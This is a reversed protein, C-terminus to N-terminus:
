AVREADAPLPLESRDLYDNLHVVVTEADILAVAYAPPEHSKPVPRITQFDLPVQHNTARLMSFPVGLWSGSIPRHVHGFFMHRVNDYRQLVSRLLDPGLLRIRDLSPLGIEFPPHHMFLYAPTRPAEALRSDLWRARLECFAGEAHGTAVTDLLLLRGLPTEVVSQVFGHEDCAVEHFVDKFTGRDDHNGIMLRVPIRLQSLSQELDEYASRDGCDALDGTIICLEADSHHANLDDICANLRKRPDLGHLTNGPSVFHTDTIQIIKMM